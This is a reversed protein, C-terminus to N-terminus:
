QDPQKLKAIEQGLTLGMYASCCDVSMSIPAVLASIQRLTREFSGTLTVIKDRMSGNDLRDHSYLVRM